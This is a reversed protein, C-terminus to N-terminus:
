GAPEPEPRYGRGLRLELTAVPRGARMITAPELPELATFHRGAIEWLYAADGRAQVVVVMDRGALDAQDHLFRFHRPDNCACVTVSGPGMARGVKGAATWHAAAVPTSLDHLGQAELAPRLASWDVLDITPDSAALAQPLLGGRVTQVALAGVVVAVSVAAVAATGRTLRPWRAAWAAAAHGFLPLVFLWGPMTWHPLGRGFVAFVTFVVVPGIALLALLWAPEDRPGTWLARVLVLILSVYLLPSLYLAQGIIEQVLRDLNPALTAFRGGQASFGALDHGLNWVIVPTFLLLALAAGIWPGPTALHGRLRPVSVLFVLVGAFVLVASYKSLLALGGLAGAALWLPLTSREPPETVIRAVINAAALLFFLLPGDPLVWSGHALSFVPAVTLGGVAWLGAAEGFLSRTLTFMLWTTVAFLLIFPLRVIAGAESGALRATLGALWIHLPPHDLYGLSLDRAITVTYSEDIGLGSVAAFWLRLLTGVVIIAVVIRAPSWSTM